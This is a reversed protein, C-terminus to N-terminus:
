KKALVKHISDLEYDALPRTAASRKVMGVWARYAAAPSGQDPAFTFFLHHKKTGAESVVSIVATTGDARKLNLQLEVPGSPSAAKEGFWGRQNWVLWASIGQLQTESLEKSTSKGERFTTVIGTVFPSDLNIGGAHATATFACMVLAAIMRATMEYHVEEIDRAL